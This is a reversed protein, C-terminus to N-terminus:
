GPKKGCPYARTLAAIAEASAPRRSSDPREQLYKVVARAMEDLPVGITCFARESSGRPATAEVADRLGKLYAACSTADITIEGGQSAYTVLANCSRVLDSALSPPVTQALAAPAGVIM